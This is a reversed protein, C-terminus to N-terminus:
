EELLTLDDINWLAGSLPSSYRATYKVGQIRDRIAILSLPNVLYIFPVNEQILRQAEQYIAKRKEEDLEQAGQIYLREIALEWNSVQRDTLPTEGEALVDQNFMHLSGQTKWVNAGGNPETGGGFGLLICDWDLTNAARDVLTNFTIPKFNVEIGVQALDQKIQAGMKERLTNGSNTNLTFRVLNGDSDLLQNDADYTFGASLLLEKAKDLNYNYQEGDELYYPSQVAIPSNQPEGLGQYLNNIMTQRDLSYAVAQRFELSNFWRSKAPDVLPVGDRKGTNLNFTIFNSGPRPADNYITFKGKKTERKLLSFQEATLGMVDIGGSRFQLLASDLSEVIQQILKEVHPQPEGGPNLANKWYYPNREFIMRQGPSYNVLRYPGNGIIQSPDTDTGWTSLFEPQGEVDTTEISAQLAHKPMISIGGAYRLFPAFPEPVTFKVQRDGVKTVSPFLGQEGIRLIDRISSPIKPNFLIDNYTFLIDDVTFPEGDSWKLGERLTFIIEKQNESVVWNEALTPELEGTEGNEVILSSYMLGFIITSVDNTIPNFTKPDSITSTVIRPTQSSEKKFNDLSCGTTAIAMVVVIAM